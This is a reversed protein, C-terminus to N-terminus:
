SVLAVVVVASWSAADVVAPTWSRLTGHYRATHESPDASAGVAALCCPDAM